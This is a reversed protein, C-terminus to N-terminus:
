PARRTELHEVSTFASGMAGTIADRILVRMEVATEPIPLTEHVVQERSLFRNLDALKVNLRIESHKGAKIRQGDADYFAWIVDLLGRSTEDDTVLGLSGTQFRVTVGRSAGEGDWNVQVPIANLSLRYTLGTEAASLRDTESKPLGAELYAQPYLLEIASEKAQMDVRHLRATRQGTVGLRRRGRLSENPDWSVEYSCQADNLAQKVAIDLQGGGSYFRGGTWYARVFPNAKRFDMKKSGPVIPESKLYHSLDGSPLYSGVCDIPYLATNARSLAQMAGVWSDYIPSEPSVGFPSEGTGDCFWIVAKRGPLNALHNALAELLYYRYKFLGALHIEVHTDPNAILKKNFGGLSAKVEDPSVQSIAFEKGTAFERLPLLNSDWSYAEVLARSSLTELWKKVQALASGGQLNFSQMGSIGDSRVDRRPPLFQTSDAIVVAAGVAVGACGLPRLEKIRQPEGDFKVTFDSTQLDTVPQRGTHFRAVLNVRIDQSRATVAALFFAFCVLWHRM